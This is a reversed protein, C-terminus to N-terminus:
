LYMHQHVERKSRRGGVQKKLAKIEQKLDENIEGQIKINRYQEFIIFGTLLMLLALCERFSKRLFSTSRELKAIREVCSCTAASPDAFFHM